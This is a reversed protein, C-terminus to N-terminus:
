APGGRTLMRRAVLADAALQWAAGRHRRAWRIASDLRAREVARDRAGRASAGVAHTGWPVDAVQARALPFRAAFRRCLDVDEYYLFYEEDFGDIRLLRETDISLVAGSVWRETLPWSGVPATLSKTHDRGWAGLMRTAVTRRRGGRPALRGIRYGSAVHSIPTPYASTVSTPVGQEDLLPVTVVEDADAEALADWHVRTLRVDPNCLIVRDTVVLPLARNVAAGFGINGGAEVHRVADRGPACRDFSDDNHVVVV